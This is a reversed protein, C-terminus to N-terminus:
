ARPGFASWMVQTGSGALLWNQPVMAVHNQVADAVRPV